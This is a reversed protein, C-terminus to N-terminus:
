FSVFGYVWAALRAIQGTYMAIGLLMLLLGGIRSVAPVWRGATEWSGKLRHFGAAMIMFPIGLGASYALLLTTGGLVSGTSGAFVLIAGLVPGVCPSWGLGFGAGALFAGALGAPAGVSVRAERLLFSVQVIGAQHLGLLFIVIGAVRQLLEQHAALQMGLVSIAVGLATFVVSFGLVFAGGALIRGGRSALLSVYAPYLPWLCPVFFSFLGAGFAVMLGVPEVAVPAGESAQSVWMRMEALSAPGVQRHAIHGSPDVIVTTPIYIVGYSGAAERADDLLVTYDYGLRDVYARVAEPSEGLNIAVIEAEDTEWLRQLEAMGPACAACWTAFFRIVLPRHGTFDRLSMERGDLDPLLFDPAPEGEAQGQAWATVPSLGASLALLWFLWFALSTRM